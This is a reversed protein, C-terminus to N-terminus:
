RHEPARLWVDMAVPRLSRAVVDTFSAEVTGLDVQDRLREAFAEATHQADYRARDFRRDVARQVRRRVPQFLAFAVLTSAAVALTQGQTVRALMTQLGIVLVVFTALLIGTVVAWSVTRSIVRDIEYLRYRFVSVAVAVPLAIFTAVVLLWTPGNARFGAGFTLMAWAALTASELAFAAVLWRFQQRELGEARRWRRLMWGVAAIMIALMLTYLVIAPLLQWAPHDPLVAFPNPLEAYISTTLTVTPGVMILVALIVQVLLALRAVPRWPGTRLRGDPFTLMIALMGVFALTWGAGSAWAVLALRPDATPDVDSPLYIGASGLGIGWGVLILLLGLHNTPRRIALYAGTGAYVVYLALGPLEGIAVTAVLGAVAALAVLVARIVAM